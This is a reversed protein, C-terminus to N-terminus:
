KIQLLLQLQSCHETKQTHKSVALLNSQKIFITTAHIHKTEKEVCVNSHMEELLPSEM